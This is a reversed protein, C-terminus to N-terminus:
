GIQFCCAEEWIQILPDGFFYIPYWAFYNKMWNFHINSNIKIKNSIFYKVWDYKITLHYGTSCCEIFPFVKFLLFSFSIMIVCAMRRRASKWIVVLYVYCLDYVDWKKGLLVILGCSIQPWKHNASFNCYFQCQKFCSM